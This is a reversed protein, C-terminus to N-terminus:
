AIKICVKGMHQGSAVYEYAAIIEEQSFGFEKEVPMRLKRSSIATVVEELYQRPGIDVGRVVCGRELVLQSVNPMEEQTASALFGIVGIIGGYAIAKISQAITGAGGNATPSGPGSASGGCVSM